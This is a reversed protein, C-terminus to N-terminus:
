AEPTTEGIPRVPALPASRARPQVLTIGIMMVALALWVWISYRESLLVMSWIVGFGTVLYSAQAAFVSGARGVLWVYTAYAVGHLLSSAVIAAEPAGFRVFPDIWQGSLVAIPGTVIMGLIAAGLIAQMPDLDEIGWKAVINGEAAYFLPALLAVPIFIAMAREPLSADPAVLLIIGAIGFSLGLLRRWAFSENGMLLAIPLSFLPVSAIVIAMIGGPLRAAALYFFVDPLISGFAAIAVYVRWYRRSLDLRRGRLYCILGMLLIIVVEQWFIIGFPLYGTSVAIKSFPVSLGWGAGAGFLVAYPLLDLRRM